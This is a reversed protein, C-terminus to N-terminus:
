AGREVQERLRLAKPFAPVAALVLVAILGSVLYISHLAHALADLIGAIGPISAIQRPGEELLRSIEDGNLSSRSALGANFIGGFVASGFSQGIIRTFFVSSMAAGRQSWEVNDQIAVVFSINTIGMGLGMIAVGIIPQLPNAGPHLLVLFSVGTVILIGGMTSSLRYPMHLVLRSGLFGGTPWFVSLTGLAMGSVLTSSGMLVRMYVPLFGVIAMSIAGNAAGVWNGGAVLRDRYLRVPIMPEATRSEYFILAAILLASVCFTAALTAISLTNADILAIMILATALALLMAGIYDIQHRRPRVEEKLAIMLMTAAIIGFPINIWFIAKWSIHTAILGGIMPGIVAASGFTSSIYGQMRARAEGSYIDAVVTQSVPILAGSGIGQMVRFAILSLMNWAFGCLVSGVLFVAIGFLLVPKRGYLDSLRGYIPILIAQTLLYAGFIWSFLHIGGLAGVITPMATAVITGEMAAMFITSLAAAFVLPRHQAQGSSAGRDQSPSAPITLSRTEADTAIDMVSGPYPRVTIAGRAPLLALVPAGLKAPGRELWVFCEPAKSAANRRSTWRRRRPRQRLM